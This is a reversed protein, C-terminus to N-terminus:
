KGVWEPRKQLGWELLSRLVDTRTVRPWSRAVNIEEVWKDLAEAMEPSVRLNLQVPGSSNKETAMTVHM